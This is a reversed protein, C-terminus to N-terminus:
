IGNLPLRNPTPIHEHGGHAYLKKLDLDRGFCITSIKVIKSNTMLNSVHVKTTPMKSYQFISWMSKTVCFRHIQGLCLVYTDCRLM